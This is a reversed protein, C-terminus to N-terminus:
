PPGPRPSALGHRALLIPDILAKLAYWTFAAFESSPALTDALLQNWRGSAATVRGNALHEEITEISSLLRTRVHGQYRDALDGLKLIRLTADGEPTLGLPTWIWDRRNFHRNLARWEIHDLPDAAGAPDLLLPQETTTSVVPNPPPAGILAVPQSCAAGKLPFYNAKHAKNNCRGCSFLLNSWTWTLWWYHTEDIPGSQGPLFRWAGYKPRYHEIPSGSFHTLSECWACKKNQSIYLVKKTTGADYGFLTNKLADSPAGHANFANVAALLRVRAAKKLASPEPGRRIQIM